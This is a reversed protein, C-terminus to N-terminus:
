LNSFVIDDTQKAVGQSKQNSMDAVTLAGFEISGDDGVEAPPLSRSAASNDGVGLMNQQAIGLDHDVEAMVNALMGQSSDDQRIASSDSQEFSNSGTNFGM